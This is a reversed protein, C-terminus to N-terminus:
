NMSNMLMNAFDANSQNVFDANAQTANFTSTTTPTPLLPSTFMDASLDMGEVPSLEMQSPDFSFSMQRLQNNESRLSENEEELAEVRKKLTSLELASAMLTNGEVIATLEAVKTELDKVHNVKRERFARQAIRNQALRKNEPEEPLPALKRGRKPKEQDLQNAALSAADSQSASRKSSRKAPNQSQLPPPAAVAFSSLSQLTQLSPVFFADM